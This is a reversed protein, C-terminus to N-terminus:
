ETPENSKTRKAKPTSVDEPDLPQTTACSDNRELTKTEGFTENFADDFCRKLTRRVPTSIKEEEEEDDDLKSHIYDNLDITAHMAHELTKRNADFWDEVLIPCNKKDGQLMMLEAKAVDFNFKAIKYALQAKRLQKAKNSM